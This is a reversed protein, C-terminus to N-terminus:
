LPECRITTSINHSEGSTLVISDELANATEICSMTRYGGEHFDSMTASKDIWPNWIVTSQSGTKAIKIARNLGKDLMTVESSTNMYVRDVESNITIDGQQVDNLDNVKDYYSTGALGQISMNAIDSVHFYSHLASSFSQTSEGQNHMTLSVTLQQGVLIAVTLKFAENWYQSNFDNNSLQLTIRTEGTATDDVAILEFVDKRAFGHAPLSTDTTHDGFWPWCIPIGGRVASGKQFVSTESLWLIPSEGKPQFRLVHAGALAIEANAHTNNIHIVPYDSADTITVSEPLIFALNDVFDTM